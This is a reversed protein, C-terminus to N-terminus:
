DNQAVAGRGNVGGGNDTRFRAVIDVVKRQSDVVLLAEVGRARYEAGAKHASLPSGRIGGYEGAAYNIASDTQEEGLMDAVFHLYNNSNQREALLPRDGRYM